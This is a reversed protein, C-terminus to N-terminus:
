RTLEYIAHAYIEMAQYLEVLVVRENPQHETSLAGPFLAGFAVCNPIARAYTAGGSALPRSSEDGTRQRYVRMLTEVLPNEQPLYLPAVWDFEKYALGHRAAAAGLKSVVEEKSVTVPIRVDISLQEIEGLDIKGVNLRLEGSIEDACNGFIHTAYPDEGVEQAVFRVTKSEVGVADLAICLRDIANVGGEPNMAHSGRGRVEIGNEQRDYAYGLEDLRAALDDQRDGGYLISDPVANFASGGALHLGSENSAELQIQLLGAEAYIVPFTSDPTFGMAPLEENQGYRKICRWLTEEDVGFIFRLRKDFRVGADLLAKAAFLAALMPGKDDQTGRGHLRGDIEVPDWPDTEWDKLNGAPIVDVHGLIGVLQDGEGVEAFGYYGADGYRTRFGLEGAIQLGKRLARDIAQGFPFAGDEEDIVSPIRVWEILAAKMPAQQAELHDAIHEIM